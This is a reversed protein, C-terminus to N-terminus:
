ELRMVATSHVTVVGGLISGILPTLLTVDHSVAVSVSQGSPGGLNTATVTFPTVDAMADQVRVDVDSLTGGVAAERAGERASNTVVMWASFVRGGDVMGLLLLAFLPLVIATEVLAQGRESHLFRKWTTAM